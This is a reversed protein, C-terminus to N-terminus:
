VPVKAADLLGKLMQANVPAQAVTEGGIYSRGNNNFM